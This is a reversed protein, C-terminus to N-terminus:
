RREGAKISVNNYYRDTVTQVVDSKKYASFISRQFEDVIGGFTQIGSRSTLKQVHAM